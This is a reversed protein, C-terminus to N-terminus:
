DRLQKSWRAMTSLCVDMAKAADAVTYSQAVVLQSSERKFEPSKENTCRYQESTPMDMGDSVSLCPKGYDPSTCLSMPRWWM